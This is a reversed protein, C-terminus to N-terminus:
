LIAHSHTKARNAEQPEIPELRLANGSEILGSSVPGDVGALDFVFFARLASFSISSFLIAFYIELGDM